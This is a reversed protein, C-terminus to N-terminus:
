ATTNGGSSDEVIEIASVKANDNVAEFDVDLTDDDASVQFTEVTGVFRSGGAAEYPEYSEVLTENDVTIDFLRPAASSNEYDGGYTGIEAFYLRVEYSQNAEAPFEYALTGGDYRESEFLAEPTGAPVSSDFAIDFDDSYTQQGNVMYPSPSGGTDGGWAPGGDGAAVEAGGANVRYLVNGQVPETVTVTTTATGTAGDDDTVTLEVDYDGASTFTHDVQQGTADTTGDGDFDWAYSQITGDLDGSGAADFSVTEDVTISSQNATASAYPAENQASGGVEIVEIANVQPNPDDVSSPGHFFDLDITGDSTVTYSEMHGVNDGSNAVIDYNEEVTTGDIAVDFARVGASGAFQDAYYLRLEVTDGQPVDLEWQMEPGEPPDGLETAFVQEPTSNPVTSDVSSAPGRNPSDAVGNYYTTDGAPVGIWQPGDDVASVNPGGANLRYLISPSPAPETVTVNVTRSDTLGAGDTATVTVQYTGADGSQPDLTLNGTGDGDDTFTAFAPLGSASLTPTDADDSATVAVDLSQGAEVSQDGIPALTPPQNAAGVTVTTTATDTAGDDDTVTLNVAYTGASDFTNTVQSGTADTTGDGDFDWEYSVISGDTDGSGAADFAVADGATVSTENAAVSATPPQNTDGPDSVNVVEIGQIVPNVDGADSGQAFDVDVTGDSTVTFTETHGTADGGAAAIIDFNTLEQTGEVSVNFHRDGPAATDSFIDAFHLRIEVTTGAEVPFEWQMTPSSPPDGRESELVVLPVYEPVTGDTSTVADYSSPNNALSFADSGTNHYQSPSSSNDVSWVPGDDLSEVTPGGANIRYLVDAPGQVSATVTVTQTATDTAGDDDTVTLAVDYDGASTFNTTATPGTADTTGDGDFDWEYSAISGDPDSSGAADFTVDEGTEPDTPAATFSATPDQNTAATPDYKLVVVDSTLGTDGEGDDAVAMFYNYGGEASSNLLTVPIEATGDGGITATYATSYADEAGVVKNAELTDVDYGGSLGNGQVYLAAETHLLHVTEGPQGTVTITQQDDTVVAGSYTPAGGAAGLTVNAADISPAPAVTADAVAQGGAVSGDSFLHTTQTAGNAYEVTVETGSLELGSVGGTTAPGPASAGKISNPDMDVTYQLTEGAGFDTFELQQVDWGDDPDAGNHYEAFGTTTSGGVGDYVDFGEGAVDGATGNPDLVLDPLLAADHDMAVSEIPVDGTNEIRVGYSGNGGSIATDVGATNDTTVEILASPNAAGPQSVTVTQTATDTAGDDDTVTLAVDYDGASTFNTTATPGTADTTGDGDFDWEYSAISGDLDSSGAADFTIQEDVEPASPAYTYSATPPTNGDGSVSVVEIANVFPNTDPTGSGHFFDLDITGDSTVTFSEMHGTNYGAEAIPDYGDLVTQNEIEADFNRQNPEPQPALEDAFYLRVEVTEGDPVDLEWQMEPGAPPDGLETAFVQEPTSNPVTSDVSSAPGRNPSDAVGNYYTTDGAAVGLWQPGDDVASVNPGGANLRYLVQGATPAPSVQITETATGTAGDDDTVTLEVAYTGPSAFAHTVQQGTADVVGDGDVDWEYSVISGDPDTSGSGDFAVADGATISTENAAISASPDQNSPEVTEGEAWTDILLQLEPTTITEGYGPVVEDEAWWNIALQLEQTDIEDAPANQGAIVEALTQDGDTGNDVAVIEIGSVMPDDSVHLLDIDLTGDSPTVTFNKTTGVDHGVDEHIEYDDLVQQGEIEADFIRPGNEEGSDSQTGDPGYWSTEAFHLRVQYSQGATVPFEWEQSGNDNGDWRHSQFMLEPTGPPVSPDFTISDDTTATSDTTIRYPSPDSGTDADWDPGGDTATISPGAANVRYVVEGDTPQDGDGADTVTITATEGDSLGDDDTVTLSVQYTDATSYNHVVQQGTADTTGDGDFDWEYSQITGDSDTSGSADFVVDEGTEPASPVVSFSASPAQEVATPDEPTVEIFDWTAPFTAYGNTTSYTGVALGGDSGDLWADPISTTGVTVNQGGDVAYEATVTDNTPDVHMWLDIRKNDGVVASDQPMNVLSLSGDVEKTFEVGGDGGHATVVLKSWNDQDGTGLFVGVQQNGDSGGQPTQGGDDPFPDQVVTHVTFNESPPNVGFQFGNKMDNEPTGADGADVENIVLDQSAGGKFINEDEYLDAYDTGNTMLGTFGLDLLTGPYSAAQFNREVPLTTSLGNDADIAFPDETDPIGDNDDDPDNLNSTGDDDYDTPQSAASCPDTGADIEDANDYGDGDEDLTPDDAGTCTEPDTQEYDNPEFAVIGDSGGFGPGAPNSSYRVVWVTGPFKEDDGQATVDLPISGFGSFIQTNSTADTGDATLQVRHVTNDFSAILLDSQMEGGFNSATYETMGNTSAGFEAISGDDPFDGSSPHEYQCEEPNAMSFPVPTFSANFDLVKDTAGTAPDYLGAVSPSARTPNPHGAYFGEGPIYHIQDPGGFSGSSDANTCGGQVSVPVGGSGDPGNDSAYMQGDESIIVDYPNRYGPSYVQVPGNVTLKGQNRGDLGGWPADTPAVSEDPQLTPLDYKIPDGDADTETPMSDIQDLDISLIAASTAYEPLYRFQNGPAGHMTHGGNALYLTNTTENLALGNPSHAESSRAIGRVLQVHNWSSGTWTLRSVVGSNTDISESPPDHGGVNFRPDSSSVYIVPNEATGEVLIGTVQREDADSGTYVSGDDNHNTIDDVVGTIEEVGTVEYDNEGQREVTFAKIVGSEQAVYLRGDPGFDLATGSTINTTLVSSDFGVPINSSADGALDVTTPTNNGSHSVELTAGKAGASDPAFTVPISTSEGPQLTVSGSDDFGDSFESADPGVISTSEVTITPDGDDGLNTLQVSETTTDDIVTPGFDVTSPAAGLENPSPESQVIEIANVFPNTDSAGSGHFFDIDVTGDSTTTFSKMTGVNHGVDDNPDYSQLVTSGEIEVDFSRDQAHQDAFYLRVEVQTGDPVDFEWQMEEGGPPDGIENVFVEDPTDAPVSADISSAASGSPTDGAADGNFYTTSSASVGEWDPGSDLATLTDGGANVRYLTTPAASAVGSGLAVTGAFVSTVMLISVLVAALRNNTGPLHM